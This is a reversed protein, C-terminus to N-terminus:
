AKGPRLRRKSPARYSALYTPLVSEIGSPNVGLDKITKHEGTLINTTKMMYVMDRSFPKGPIMEAFFATVYALPVPYPVVMRSRRTESLMLDMLHRFTYVRPGTIEFVEGNASAQNLANVCATAVDGVFVPQFRTGAFDCFEFSPVRWQSDTGPTMKFTPMIPCGIIPVIPSWRAIAAFRNFFGDDSGIIISPKLITADPYAERVAAEGRAKTQAYKSSAEENACLASFHVLATAGAAKAARAVTAAGIEHVNAFSNRGHATLIGACNVVWDAGKVARAVEDERSVNAKIPVIQGPDGLPKLTNATEPDRCAVRVRHGANALRQVIHRGVFGNGGFVTVLKNAM